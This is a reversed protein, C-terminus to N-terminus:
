GKLHRNTCIMAFRDLDLSFAMTSPLFTSLFTHFLLVSGSSFDPFHFVEQKTKEPFSRTRTKWARLVVWATGATNKKRVESLSLCRREFPWPESTRLRGEWPLWPHGHAEDWGPATSTVNSFVGVAGEMSPYCGHRWSVRTRATQKETKTVRPM